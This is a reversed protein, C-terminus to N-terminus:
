CMTLYVTLPSPPDQVLLIVKCQLQAEAMDLKQTLARQLDKQSHLYEPAKGESVTEIKYEIM